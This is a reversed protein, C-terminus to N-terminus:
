RQNHKMVFQYTTLKNNDNLSEIVSDINTKLDDIFIIHDYETLDINNKIYDGKPEGALYHIEYKSDTQINLEKFHKKTIAEFYPNRATVFKLTSNNSEIRQLIDEFGKKDTHKPGILDIYKHWKDLAYDTESDINTTHNNLEIQHLKKIESWWSPNIGDYFLITEDIDCLILTNQKIDISYFTDIQLM